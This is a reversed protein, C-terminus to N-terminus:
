VVNAWKNMDSVAFYFIVKGHTYAMSTVDTFFVDVTDDVLYVKESGGVHYFIETGDVALVSSAMLATASGGDGVTAALAGTGTVDFATPMRYGLCKVRTGALVSLAAQAAGSTFTAIDNFDFMVAVDAGTVEKDTKSLWSVKM